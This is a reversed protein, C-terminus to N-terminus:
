MMNRHATADRSLQRSLTGTAQEYEVLRHPFATSVRSLTVAVWDHDVFRPLMLAYATSSSSIETWRLDDVGV